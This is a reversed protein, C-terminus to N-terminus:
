EQADIASIDTRDLLRGVADSVVFAEALLVAAAVIAPPIVPIGGTLLHIGYGTVGAVIAAPLVAVVLVLLLGLMMLMRQGMVDIGRARAPGTLAWSPWMVAIANQALLQLLILGPALLAAAVVWSPQVKLSAAFILGDLACLWAIVTLLAAPAMVEGRVLAAGSVPWAKLVDLNALDQRLDNRAIQPGLFITLVYALGAMGALASGMGRRSGSTLMVGLLVFIPLFRLLTRLSVYRGVSILNKWLIATEPRGEISLRFPAQTAPRVKPASPQPGKRIRAIKEALEASGEEFSADSRIVWIYNLLLILLAGPLAHLFASPTEVLPLRTLARFPWLVIGASGTTALRGLELMVDKGTPLSSLTWWDLAVTGALVITAGIALGAPLWRRASLSGRSLSVGTSYLNLISFILAMGAFFMWGEALSARRVFLTMIASGILVGVQSRIVKYRILEKRTLPAPFLFQIDARSFNLAPRRRSPIWASAAILFLFTAGALEISLRAGSTALLAGLSGGSRARPRLFVTWLYGLGAIMGIFYRPEKLRKLRVRMRNRLSCLTLYLLPGM